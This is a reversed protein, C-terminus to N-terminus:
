IQAITKIIKIEKLWFFSTVIFFIMIPLILDQFHTIKNIKFFYEIIFLLALVIFTPFNFRTIKSIMTKRSSNILNYIIITLITNYIFFSVTTSLAVGSIGYGYKIAFISLITNLLGTIVFVLATIKQKNMVFLANNIFATESRYFVAFILIQASLIGPKFKPLFGNILYPTVIILLGIIVPMTNSIIKIPFEFHKKIVENSINNGHKKNLQTFVIVASTSILMYIPAAFMNGITYYGVQELSSFSIIIIRDISTFITASIDNILLPIGAFLLRKVINYDWIIQFGYKINKWYIVTLIGNSIILGWVAGNLKFFYILPLIILVNIATTLYSIKSLFKYKNLGKAMVNGYGAIADLLIVIMFLYLIYKLTLNNVFFTFIFVGIIYVLVSAITFTFGIAAIKKAENLKNEGILRPIDRRVVFPLSISSLHAYGQAIKATRLTGLGMPGLINAKFYSTFVSVFMNVFKAGSLQAINTLITKSLTKSNTSKM